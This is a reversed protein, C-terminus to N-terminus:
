IGLRGLPMPLLTAQKPGLAPFKLRSQDSKRRYWLGPVAVWPWHTSVINVIGGHAAGPVDVRGVECDDVDVENAVCVIGSRVHCAVLRRSFSRTEGLKKGAISDIMM